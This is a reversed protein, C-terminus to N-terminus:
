LKYFSLVNNVHIFIYYIWMKSINLLFNFFPFNINNTSITDVTNFNKFELCLYELRNLFFFFTTNFAFYNSHNNLFCIFKCLCKEIIQIMLSALNNTVISPLHASYWQANVALFLACLEYASQSTIIVLYLNHLLFPEKSVVVM